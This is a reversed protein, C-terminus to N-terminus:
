SALVKCLDYATNFTDLDGCGVGTLDGIKSAFLVSVPHHNVGSTGRNNARSDAWLTETVEAFSRVVGSLNCADQIDIALQAAQALTYRM